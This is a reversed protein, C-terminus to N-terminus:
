FGAFHNGKKEMMGAILIVAIRGRSSSTVCPNSVMMIQTDTTWCM